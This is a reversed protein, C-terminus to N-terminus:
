KFKLAPAPNEFGPAFPPVAPAVAGVSGLLGSIFGNSNYGDDPWYRDGRSMVHYRAEKYEIRLSRAM